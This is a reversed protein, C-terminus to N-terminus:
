DLDPAVRECALRPVFPRSPSKPSLPSVERSKAEIKSSTPRVLAVLGRIEQVSDVLSECSARSKQDMAAINAELNAMQMSTTACDKQLAEQSWLLAQISEHLAHISHDSRAQHQTLEQLMNATLSDFENCKGRRADVCTDEKAQPPQKSPGSALEEEWASIKGSLSDRHSNFQRRCEKFISEIKLVCQETVPNRVDAMCEVFQDLQVPEGLLELTQLVEEVKRAPVLCKRAIKGTNEPEEFFSRMDALHITGDELAIPSFFEKLEAMTTQRDDSDQAIRLEEEQQGTTSIMNESVVATLISLLTWSSTVMFFIFAFKVSPLDNMLEDIANSEEDSQAGSM